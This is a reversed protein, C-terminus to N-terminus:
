GGPSAGDLLDMFMQEALAERDEEALGAPPQSIQFDLKQRAQEDLNAVALTYITNLVAGLPERHLDVGAQALKGGVVKWQEGASRILRDAEWWRWGSAVELAERSVQVVERLEVDGYAIRDALEDEQETPLMGPVIPLPKDGLISLFWEAAPVAPITYERGGVEVVVPWCKLAALADM